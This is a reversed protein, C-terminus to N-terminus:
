IERDPIFDLRGYNERTLYRGMTELVADMSVTKLFSVTNFDQYDRAEWMDNLEGNATFLNSQERGVLFDQTLKNLMCRKERERFGNAVVHEVTTFFQDEVFAFHREETPFSFSCGGFPADSIGFSLSYIVGAEERLVQYLPGFSSNTLMEMGLSLLEEELVAEPANFRLTMRSCSLEGVFRDRSLTSFKRKTQVERVSRVDSFVSRVVDLVEDHDAGGCVIVALNEAGFYRDWYRKLDQMVMSSVSETTGLIHSHSEKWSPFLRERIWLSCLDGTLHMLIEQLIAQREKELLDQSFSPQFVIRHLGRMIEHMDSLQGGAFFSMANQSTRGNPADNGRQVLDNFAPHAGLDGKESLLVHELFHAAGSHDEDQCSGVSLALKVSVFESKGTASIVTLGNDLKTIAMPVFRNVLHITEM